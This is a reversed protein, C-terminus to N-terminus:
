EEFGNYYDEHTTETYNTPLADIAPCQDGIVYTKIYVVTKATAGAESLSEDDDDNALQEAVLEGELELIEKAEEVSLGSEIDEQIWDVKWSNDWFEDEVNNDATVTEELSFTCQLQLIRSAEKDIWIIYEEASTESSDDNNESNNLYTVYRDLIESFGDVANVSEESWEFENIIDARTVSDSNSATNEDSDLAYDPIATIKLKITDNGNLSENGENTIVVDSYGNEESFSYDFEALMYDFTTENNEDANELFKVWENNYSSDKEYCYVSDNDKVLFTKKLEEGSSLYSSEIINKTSDYYINETESLSTGDEYTTTYVTTTGRIEEANFNDLATQLLEQNTLTAEDTSSSNEQKSSCGINLVVINLILLSLVVKKNLM